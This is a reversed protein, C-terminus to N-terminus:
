KTVFAPSFTVQQKGYEGLHGSILFYCLFSLFGFGTLNHLYIKAPIKKGTSQQNKEKNAIQM